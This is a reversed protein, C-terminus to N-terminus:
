NNSKDKNIEKEVSDAISLFDAIEEATLNRPKTDKICFVAIPYGTEYDYIATGAYFRIFPSGTVMPNEAFRKDELCDPIIFLNKSLLAQGCFSIARDGERGELGQCSKYYEKKKDLITLTSIPVHLDDTAKKTFIDFRAEPALNDLIGMEMVRKLRGDEDPPLNTSFADMSNNMSNNTTM